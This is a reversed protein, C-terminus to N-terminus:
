KSYSISYSIILAVWYFFNKDRNVRPLNRYAQEVARACYYLKMHNKIGAKEIKKFLPSLLFCNKVSKM